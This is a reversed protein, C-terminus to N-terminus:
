AQFTVPPPTLTALDNHTIDYDTRREQWAAIDNNDFWPYYDSWLDNWRAFNSVGRFFQDADFRGNNVYDPTM